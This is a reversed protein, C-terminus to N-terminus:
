FCATPRGILRIVPASLTVSHNSISIPGETFSHKLDLNLL